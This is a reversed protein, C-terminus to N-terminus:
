RMWMRHLSWSEHASVSPSTESHWADASFSAKASAFQYESVPSRGWITTMARTSAVKRTPLSTISTKMKGISEIAHPRRVLYECSPRSSAYEGGCNLSASLYAYMM